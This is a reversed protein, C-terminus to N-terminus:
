QWDHDAGPATRSLMSEILIGQHMEYNQLQSSHTVTANPKMAVLLVVDLGDELQQAVRADKEALEPIHAELEKQNIRIFHVPQGREAYQRIYEQALTTKVGEAIQRRAFLRDGTELHLSTEDINATFVPDYDQIAPPLEFAPAHTVATLESTTEFNNQSM